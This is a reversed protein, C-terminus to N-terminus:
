EGEHLATFERRGIRQLAMAGMLEGVKEGTQEDSGLGAAIVFAGMMMEERPTTEAERNELGAQVARELLTWLATREREALAEDLLRIQEATLRGSGRYAVESLRGLEYIMAYHLEDESWGNKEFCDFAAAIGYQSLKDRTGGDSGDEAFSFDKSLAAIQAQEEASYSQAMCELGEAAQAVGPMTLLLGAMAWPKWGRAM